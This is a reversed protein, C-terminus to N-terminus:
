RVGGRYCRSLVVAVAIVSGTHALTTSLGLTLAHAVTGKEGVLYAAVLTKGHGPTFAHAMGFVAAALLLVGVGYGSDFLATLGRDVLAQALSPREGIVVPEAEPGPPPPPATPAAAGAPFAILASAKVL